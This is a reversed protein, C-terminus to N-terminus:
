PTVMAGMAADLMGIVENQLDDDMLEERVIQEFASRVAARDTHSIEDVVEAVEAELVTDPGMIEFLRNVFEPGNAAPGFAYVVKTKGDHSHIADMAELSDYVATSGGARLWRLITTGDSFVVGEAVTGTGSVGSVDASRKLTFPQIM